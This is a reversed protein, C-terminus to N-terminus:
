VRATIGEGADTIHMCCRLNINQLLPCGNAVASLGADEIEVCHRLNIAELRPCGDAISRLFDGTIKGCDELSIYRFSSINAGEFTLDLYNESNMRVNSTELGRMNLWRMSSPSLMWVNARSTTVQAMDLKGMSRFDILDSLFFM